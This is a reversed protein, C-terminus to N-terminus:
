LCTYYVPLGPPISSSPREPPEDNDSFASYDDDSDSGYNGVQATPSQTEDWTINHPTPLDQTNHLAWGNVIGIYGYRAHEFVQGVRFQVKKRIYTSYRRHVTPIRSDHNEIMRITQRADRWGPRRMMQTTVFREYLPMLFRKMIWTDELFTQIYRNMFGEMTHDWPTGNRPTILLGAWSAAYIASELNVDPDGSRLRKIMDAQPKAADHARSFSARVNHALRQVIYSTPSPRMFAESVNSLAPGISNLRARLESITIEDNSGYPDLFMRDPNIASDNANVQGDLTMGVPPVVMAHVHSPFACCAASIGVRNAICCYIASSVIPLSPHQADSLAQGILCNRLNRYNQEPGEMGTLNKMRVWVNLALAKERTTMENLRPYDSRFDAAIEDLM